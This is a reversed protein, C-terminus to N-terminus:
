ADQTYQEDVRALFEGISETREAPEPFISEVDGRLSAWMGQLRAVYPSVTRVLLPAPAPTQFPNHERVEHGM